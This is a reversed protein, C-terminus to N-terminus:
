KEGGADASTKDLPVPLDPPPTALDPAAIDPSADKSTGTDTSTGTDIKQDSRHGETRRHDPRHDRRQHDAHGERNIATAKDIVADSGTQNIDFNTPVDHNGTSMDQNFRSDPFDAWCGAFLVVLPLPLLTKSSM